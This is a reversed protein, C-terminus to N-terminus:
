EKFPGAGKVAPIYIAAVDDAIRMESYFEDLNNMVIVTLRDDVYRHDNRRQGSQRPAM